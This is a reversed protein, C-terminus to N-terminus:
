TLFRERARRKIDAATVREINGADISADAVAIRAKMQAIREDRDADHRLLMTLAARVVDAESPYTGDAVKSAVLARLDAPVDITMGPSYANRPEM